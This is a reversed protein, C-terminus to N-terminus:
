RQSNLRDESLLWAFNGLLVWLQGRVLTGLGTAASSLLGGKDNVPVVMLKLLLIAGRAGYTRCGARVIGGAVFVTNDLAHVIKLSTDPSRSIRHREVLVCRVAISSVVVGRWSDVQEVLLAIFVLADFECTLFQHEVDVDRSKGAAHVTGQVQGLHVHGSSLALCVGTGGVARTVTISLARLQAPKIASHVSSRKARAAILHVNPLRIAAGCPVRRVRATDLANAAASAGVALEVSDAVLPSAAEVGVGHSALLVITVVVGEGDVRRLLEGDQYTQPERLAM